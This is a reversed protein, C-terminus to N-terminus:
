GEGERSVVVDVPTGVAVAGAVAGLTAAPGATGADSDNLPTGHPGPMDGAALPM